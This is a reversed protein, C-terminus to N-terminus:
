RKRLLYLILAIFAGVLSLMILLAFLILIIEPAGINLFSLTTHTM